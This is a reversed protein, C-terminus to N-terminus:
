FRVQVELSGRYGSAGGESARYGAVARVLVDERVDFVAGAGLSLATPQVETKLTQGGVKVETEDSLEHEVDLSGFLLGSAAGAGVEKEVTVGVRGKVSGADELSVRSRGPGGATELDTFDDLDVKSWALGARPTVFAGGVPMRKGAEAGLAYGVGSADKKLLKGQTYSDLGVDYRTAAAQADVYFDEFRWAASVGAGLGDLEVEGVGAMEAKGRPAHVSFGVQLDERPAFDMGARAVVWAHDYALKAATTAQKARWEGRSAEVRAWGGRADRPASMREARSPLANLALLMSPLAEYMRCRGDGAAGCSFVPRLPFRNPDLLGDADFRLTAFYGTAKGNREERFHVGDGVNRYGGPVRDEAAVNEGQHGGEVRALAEAAEERYLGPVVLIVTVPATASGQIAYDAGNALVRGKLGVIVSGGNDLNVAAVGGAGGRVEGDIYVLAPGGTALIADNSGAHVRGGELVLVGGGDLLYVAAGTGGTVTGRVTVLQNRLTVESGPEGHIAAVLDDPDGIGAGPAIEVGYRPTYKREVMLGTGANNGANAVYVGVQSGTVSAGAGVTVSIGGNGAAYTQWHARIGNGGNGTISGGTTISIDGATAASTKYVELGHTGGMITPGTNAATGRITVAGTGRSEIYVGEAASTITGGTATLTIAGNGEARMGIGRQTSTTATVDGSTTVLMPGAGSTVLLMGPSNTSSTSTIAGTHEVTMTGAGGMAADIGEYNAYITGANTITVDNPGGRVRIGHEGISSTSSGITVTSRVDVTATGASSLMDISVGRGSGTLRVAGATGLIIAYNGTM